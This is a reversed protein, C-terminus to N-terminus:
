RRWTARVITACAALASAVQMLAGRTIGIVGGATIDNARRLNACSATAIGAASCIDNSGGVVDGSINAVCVEIAMCGGARRNNHDRNPAGARDNRIRVHRPATNHRPM